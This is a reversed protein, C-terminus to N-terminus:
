KPEGCALEIMSVVIKLHGANVATNLATLAQESLQLQQNTIPKNVTTKPPTSGCDSRHELLQPQGTAHITGDDDVKVIYASVDSADLLLKKLKAEVQAKTLRPLKTKVPDTAHASSLSVLLGAILAASRVIRLATRHSM